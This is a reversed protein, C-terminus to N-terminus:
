HGSTSNKNKRIIRENQDIARRAPDLNNDLESRDRRLQEEVRNQARRAPTTEIIVPANRNHRYHNKKHDRVTDTKELGEEDSEIPTKAEPKHYSKQHASERQPTTDGPIANDPSDEFIQVQRHYKSPIDSYNDTFNITGASDTWVYTEAAAIGAFLILMVFIRLIM